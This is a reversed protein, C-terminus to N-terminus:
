ILSEITEIMEEYQKENLNEDRLKNYFDKRNPIQVDDKFKDIDDFWDYPFEGKKCIYKFLEEDDTIKRMAQKKNNPVNAILKELSSMIFGMSDIFKFSNMSLTKYNESNSAICNINCKGHTDVNLNGKDCFANIVQRLDYNLNHFVVPISEKKPTSAKINCEKCSAGRYLGTYHCHDKVPDILADNCFRCIKAQKFEEEQQPTIIMHEKYKEKAEKIKEQILPEIKLLTDVFHNNANEGCYSYDVTELPIDSKIYIRYSASKHETTKELTSKDKDNKKKKTLKKNIAEFDGYIVVPARNQNQYKTFNMTPKENNKQQPMVVKQSTKLINCDMCHEEYNKKVSFSKLCRQCYYSHGNKNGVFRNWNKIYSYHKNYIFLNVVEEFTQESIRVPLIEKKDDKYTYINICLKNNKEFHLIKQSNPEIGEEFDKENFKLLHKHNKYKSIREANKQPNVKHALVSWIFCLNDSLNKVNIIANKNYIETPLPQYSRGLNPTYKTIGINISTLKTPTAGNYKKLFDMVKYTLDDVQKDFTKDFNKPNLVVEGKVNQFAKGKDKDKSTTNYYVSLSLKGQHKFKKSMAKKYNNTKNTIHEKIVDEMIVVDQSKIIRNIPIKYRQYSGKFATDTKYDDFKKEYIKEKRKDLKPKNISENFAIAGLEYAKRLNDKKDGSTLNFKTRLEDATKVGLFKKIKNHSTTTLPKTTNIKHIRQSM